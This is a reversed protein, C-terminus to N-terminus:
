IASPSVFANKTTRWAPDYRKHTVLAEPQVSLLAMTFTLTKARGTLLRDGDFVWIM